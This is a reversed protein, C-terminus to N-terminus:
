DEVKTVGPLVLKDIPVKDETDGIATMATMLAEIPKRHLTSDNPFFGIKRLYDYSQSIEDRKASKMEAALIDIAAARNADTNFWAISKDLAGLFRVLADHHEKAYALSVDASGFPLDRAFEMLSGINHFGSSEAIFNFPPALMAADASGSKLAAYRGATNGVTTIDVDSDKLGASALVRELYVHTINVLSGLVVTKGKLDKVTKVKDDAVMDYPPVAETIRVIAVPAGHAVADIPAPVSTDVIDLSGSSLQQMVGSATPVYIIDLKIGAAIFFGQHIGVYMEWEAANPSGVLGTEVTDMAQASAVGWLMACTVAAGLLGKISMM